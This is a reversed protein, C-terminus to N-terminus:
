YHEVDKVKGRFIYYAYWTYIMLLPLMIMAGVLMFALSNNPSAAQWITLSYPVIYPWASIVCGGYASLFIVISLWYPWFDNKKILAYFLGLMAVAATIPLLSIWILYPSNLWRSEVLPHVFPTWLSTILLCIAVAVASFKAFRFAKVQLSGESKLVLRTSGLLMYGYVLSLGTFGSFPTLWQYAVPLTPDSSLQFGQL